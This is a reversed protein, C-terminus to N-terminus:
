SSSGGRDIKAAVHNRATSTRMTRPTMPATATGYMRSATFGGGVCCATTFDAGNGAAGGDGGGDGERASASGTVLVGTSLGPRGGAWREVDGAAAAIASVDFVEVGPTFDDAGSAFASTGASLGDDAAGACASGDVGGGFPAALLRLEFVGAAFASLAEFFVAASLGCVLVLGVAFFGDSARWDAAPM